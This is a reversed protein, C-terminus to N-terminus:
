VLGREPAGRLSRDDPPYSALDNDHLWGNVDADRLDPRHKRLHCVYALTIGLRAAIGEDAVKTPRCADAGCRGGAPPSSRRPMM